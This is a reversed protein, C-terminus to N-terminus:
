HHGISTAAMHHILVWTKAHWSMPAPDGVNAIVIMAGVVLL